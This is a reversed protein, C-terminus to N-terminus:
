AFVVTWKGNHDKTFITRHLVFTVARLDSLRLHVTVNTQAFLVREPVTVTGKFTVRSPFRDQRVYLNSKYCMDGAENEFLGVVQGLCSVVVYIITLPVMSDPLHPKCTVRRFKVFNGVCVEGGGSEVYESCPRGRAHQAVLQNNIAVYSGTSYPKSM